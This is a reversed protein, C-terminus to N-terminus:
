FPHEEPRGLAFRGTGKTCPCPGDNLQKGCRSCLGKCSERCLLKVPVALLLADIADQKIDIYRAGQSLLRVEDSEEESGGTSSYIYLTKVKGKITRQFSDGCRDCMFDGRNETSLELLFDDGVLTVHAQINAQHAEGGPLGIQFELHNTKFEFDCIGQRIQAIPIRIEGFDLSRM